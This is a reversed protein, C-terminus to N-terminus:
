YYLSRKKRIKSGSNTSSLKFCFNKQFFMAIFTIIIIFMSIVFYLRLMALPIVDGSQNTQVAALPTLSMKM